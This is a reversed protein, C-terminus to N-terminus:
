GKGFVRSQPLRAAKEPMDRGTEGRREVSMRLRSLRKLAKKSKWTWGTMLLNM